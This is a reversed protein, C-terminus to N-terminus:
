KFFLPVVGEVVKKASSTISGLTRPTIAITMPHLGRFVITIQLPSVMCQLDRHPDRHASASSERSM